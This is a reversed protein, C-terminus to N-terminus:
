WGIELFNNAWDNLYNERIENSLNKWESSTIGWDEELDIIEEKKTQSYSSYCWVKIKM